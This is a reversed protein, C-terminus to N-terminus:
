EDHRETHQRKRKEPLVVTLIILVAVATLTFKAVEYTERHPSYRMGHHAFAYIQLGGVALFCVGMILTAIQRWSELTRGPLLFELSFLLGAPVAIMAIILEFWRSGSGGAARDLAQRAEQNGQQAAKRYWRIAEVRDRPVGQGTRYMYGLFLEADSNGQEAAKRYLRAAEARNRTVGKGHFYLYGLGVEADSFGQDAGKQYWHFAKVYDQPLGQGHLYLYGLGAEAKADGQTAAKQTWHAAEVFNQPVGKGRYYLDGLCFEAKAYGDEAAKRYWYAAEGFNQKLGKGAYFLHGLSFEAAIEGHQARTRVNMAVEVLRRQNNVDRMHIWWLVSAGCILLITSVFLAAKGFLTM